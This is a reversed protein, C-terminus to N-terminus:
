AHKLYIKNAELINLEDSNSYYFMSLITIYMFKYEEKFNVHQDIMTVLTDNVKSLHTCLHNNADFEQWYTARDKRNCKLENKSDYLYIYGKNGQRSESVHFGNSKLVVILFQKLATRRAQLKTM